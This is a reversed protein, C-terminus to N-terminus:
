REGDGAGDAVHLARRQALEAVITRREATSFDIWGAIEELTRYCGICWGSAQDIVCISVCPSAVRAEHLEPTM